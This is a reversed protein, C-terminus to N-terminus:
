ARYGPLPEGLEQFALKVRLNCGANRSFDGEEFVWRGENWFYRGPKGNVMMEVTQGGKLSVEAGNEYYYGGGAENAGYYTQMENVFYNGERDEFIDLSMCNMKTRNLLNRSFDMLQEPPRSYHSIKSGSHFNGKKGKQYVFFSEGIRIVRWEKVDYLFQQFFVQGFNRDRPDYFSSRFGKGFCRRVLEAAEKQTRLIRVGVADSGIDTKFVLPFSASTVFRLAQERSLFVWIKPHPIRYHELWSSCRRKSEYIWLADFNPFLTRNLVNKLFYAREEYVSRGLTSLVFPRLFYVYSEDQEAKSVWDPTTLDLTHYPVGLEQCAAEYYAHRWMWDHIICVEKDTTLDSPRARAVIDAYAQKWDAEHLAEFNLRSKVELKMHKPVFKLVGTKRLLRAVNEHTM